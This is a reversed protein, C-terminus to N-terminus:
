SSIISRSACFARSSAAAAVPLAAVCASALLVEPDALVLLGPSLEPTVAPEVLWTSRTDLGADADANANAATAAAADDASAEEEEEAEVEESDRAEISDGRLSTGM